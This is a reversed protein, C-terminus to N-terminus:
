LPAALTERGRSTLLYTSFDKLEVYGADRLERLGSRVRFLPLVTRAAIDEPSQPGDGLARLIDMGARTLKGDATICAM